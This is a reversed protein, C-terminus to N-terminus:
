WFWSVITDREGSRLMTVEHIIHSRFAVLLGEDGELAFGYNRWRADQILGYFTLLGGDNDDAEPNRSGSSLYIVTSLRRERIYTPKESNTSGDQHPGFYDGKRYLLFQPEECNTLSLNFHRELPRKLAFIRNRILTITENSVRVQASRRIDECELPSHTSGSVVTAPNQNGRRMESRLAQCLTPELFHECTFLGLASFFDANPM